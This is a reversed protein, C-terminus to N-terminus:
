TAGNDIAELVNTRIEDAKNTAIEMAQHVEDLTFTGVQSKQIACVEQNQGTAITIQTDILAEEEITPDLLLKDGIKVMTVEVPINQLPLPSTADTYEITGEETVTYGRLTTNMLAAIAALAAADFLNGDHDLIYIDVFVIFVLKGPTVCLKSLDVAQSERLGRDVVRALEVSDENPPGPEFSPSAIPVLEANVTLVGADPKDPYPTGTEVKVGVLVQTKGISVWASGSAKGIVGPNVQIPRYDLLGRGDIRKDQRLQDLIRRRQINAIVEYSESM